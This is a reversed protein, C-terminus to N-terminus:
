KQPSPYHRVTDFQKCSICVPRKGDLYALVATDRQGVGGHICETITFYRDLNVLIYPSAVNEHDLRGAKRNILVDHFQEKDNISQFPSRRAPYSSNYWIVAIGSLVSFDLRSDRNRRLQHSVQKCRCPRVPDYSNIQMCGLYLAKEINRNVVQISRGYQIIVYFFPLKVIK